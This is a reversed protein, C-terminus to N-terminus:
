MAYAIGLTYEICRHRPTVWYAGAPFGIHTPGVGPRSRHRGWFPQASVGPENQRKLGRPQTKKSVTPYRSGHRSGSRDAIRTCGGACAGACVEM